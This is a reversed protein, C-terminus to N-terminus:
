MWEEDRLADVDRHRPARNEVAADDEVRNLHGVPVHVDLVERVTTDAERPKRLAAAPLAGPRRRELVHSRRSPLEGILIMPRRPARNRPVQIDGDRPRRGLIAALRLERVARDRHLVVHRHTRVHVRGEPDDVPLDQQVADIEHSVAGLALQGANDVGPMPRLLRVLDFRLDVERSLLADPESVVCERDHARGVEGACEM